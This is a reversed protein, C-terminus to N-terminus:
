HFDTAFPVDLNSVINIKTVSLLAHIVNKVEICEGMILYIESFVLLSAPSNTLSCFNVWASINNM